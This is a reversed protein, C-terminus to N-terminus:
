LRDLRSAENMTSFVSIRVYLHFNEESRPHILTSKQRFTGRTCLRVLVLRHWNLSLMKRRLTTRTIRHCHDDELQPRIKQTLPGERYLCTFPVLPTNKCRIGVAAPRSWSSDIPQPLPERNGERTSPRTPIPASPRERNEMYSGYDHFVRNMRDNCRLLEVLRLLTTVLRSM